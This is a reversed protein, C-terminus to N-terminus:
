GVAMALITQILLKATEGNIVEAVSAIRNWDASQSMASPDKVEVEAVSINAQEVALNLAVALEQSQTFCFTVCNSEADVSRTFTGFKPIKVANSGKQVLLYRMNKNFGSWLKYLMLLASKKSRVQLRQAHGFGRPAKENQLYGAVQWIYNRM